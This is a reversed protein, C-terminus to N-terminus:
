VWEGKPTNKQYDFAIKEATKAINRKAIIIYAQRASYGQRVLEQVDPNIKRTRTKYQLHNGYQTPHLAESFEREM